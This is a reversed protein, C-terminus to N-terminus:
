NPKTLPLDKGNSNSIRTGINTLPGPISGPVFYSCLYSKDAKIDKKLRNTKCELIFSITRLMSKAGVNKSIAPIFGGAWISPREANLNNWLCLFPLLFNKECQGSVNKISLLPLRFYLLIM